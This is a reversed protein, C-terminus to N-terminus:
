IVVNGEMGAVSMRIRTGILGSMGPFLQGGTIGLKRHVSDDCVAILAELGM